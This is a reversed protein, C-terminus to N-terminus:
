LSALEAEEEDNLIPECRFVAPRAPEVVECVASRPISAIISMNLSSHLITLEADSYQKKFPRPMAAAFNLFKEKDEGNWCYQYIGISKIEADPNSDLRDAFARLEAAVESSKPM